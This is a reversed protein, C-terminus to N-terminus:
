KHRESTEDLVLFLVKRLVISYSPTEENKSPCYTSLSTYSDSIAKRSSYACAERYNNADAKGRTSTRNERGSVAGEERGSDSHNERDTCPYAPSSSSSCSIASCRKSSCSSARSNDHATGSSSRYKWSFYHNKNCKNIIIRRM